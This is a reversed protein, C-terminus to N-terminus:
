VARGDLRGAADVGGDAGAPRAAPHALTPRLSISVPAPVYAGPWVVPQCSPHQVSPGRRRRARQWSGAPRVEEPGRVDVIVISSGPLPDELKRQLQTCSILKVTPFHGSIKTAMAHLANSKADHM